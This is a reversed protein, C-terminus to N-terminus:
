SNIKQWRMLAFVASWFSVIPSHLCGFLSSCYFRQQYCIKYYTYVRFIWETLAFVYFLKALFITTFIMMLQLFYHIIFFFNSYFFVIQRLFLLSIKLILNVYLIISLSYCYIESWFFFQKKKLCFYGISPLQMPYSWM